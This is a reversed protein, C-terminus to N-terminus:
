AGLSVAALIAAALALTLAGGAALEVRRTELVVSVLTGRLARAPLAALGFLCIALGLTALLLTTLLARAGGGGSPLAVATGAVVPPETAVPPETVVPPELGPASPAAGTARPLSDSPAPASTPRKGPRSHRKGAGAKAHPKEHTTEHKTTPAAAPAVQAPPPSAVQSVKEPKPPLLEGAPPAPDPKPAPEPVPTPSPVTVPESASTTAPPPPDDGWAQPTAAGAALVCVILALFRQPPVRRM